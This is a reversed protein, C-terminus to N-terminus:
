AVHNYHLSVKFFINSEFPFTGLTKFFLRQAKFRLLFHVLQDAVIGNLHQEEEDSEGIEDLVIYDQLSINKADGVDDFASAKVDATRHDKHLRLIGHKKLM